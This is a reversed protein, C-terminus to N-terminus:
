SLTACVRLRRRKLSPPAKFPTRQEMLRRVERQIATFEEGPAAYNSPQVHEILLRMRAIREDRDPLASFVKPENAAPQLQVREIYRVLAAPNFGAHAMTQVALADAELENSRQLAFFALPVAQGESCGGGWGSMFILPISAYNVIQGRTAQRTGHRQATHQMAHALMGAFEAEDQAAVFLAAPVFVYGGPLAAPEHIMRCPDDAIVSFTFPFKADRIQAAIRQGFRDLYKQVSPSDIPRTRQRLDAAFQKGIAAEKEVSYFNVGNETHGIPEQAASPVGALILVAVHLVRM